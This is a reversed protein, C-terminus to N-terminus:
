LNIKLFRTAYDRAVQQGNMGAIGKLLIARTVPVKIILGLDMRSLALELGTLPNFTDKPNQIAASVLLHEGDASLKCMLMNFRQPKVKIDHSPLALGPFMESILGNIVKLGVAEIHGHSSGTVVEMAILREGNIRHELDKWRLTNIKENRVDKHKLLSAEIRGVIQLEAALYQDFSHGPNANAWGSMAEVVLASRRKIFTNVYGDEPYKPNLVVEDIVPTEYGSISVVNQQPEDIKIAAAEGPLVNSRSAQTAQMTQKGLVLTVNHNFINVVKM